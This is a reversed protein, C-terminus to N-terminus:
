VQPLCSVIDSNINIKIDYKDTVTLSACDEPKTSIFNFINYKTFLTKNGGHYRYVADIMGKAIIEGTNDDMNYTNVRYENNNEKLYKYIYEKNSVKVVIKDEEYEATINGQRIINDVKMFEESIPLLNYRISGITGHGNYYLNKGVKGMAFLVVCLIFWIFAKKGNSM